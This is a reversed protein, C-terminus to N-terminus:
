AGSAAPAQVLGDGRDLMDVGARFVDTRCTARMRTVVASATAPIGADEKVNQWWLAAVGAVHPCAMSTGQLAVLGGGAKASVVDVGPGSLMPNTNSFNAVKLGDGTEGLAGVSVIGKAAAPVSASVEYKPNKQRKSENGSAAVIVMGGNFAARAAILDMLNDFVRLNARYGELAISTALDVPYGRAALKKSLGPFDLGLSMSLVKANLSSAWLIANFLMDSEGGGKDDLVKGILARSVGPAVGIRTGDVDRGFVTGACHTGHGQVDGNGRGTFDRQVLDVGAFAQHHADIGTDLVCVLVDRGDAASKDAGVAQIGWTPGTTAPADSAMPEILRTPMTRALDLIGPDRTADRLDKPELDEVSVEPEPPMDGSMTPMGGLSPAGGVSQRGDFWNRRRGANADKLIVYSTM